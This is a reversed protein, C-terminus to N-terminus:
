RWTLSDDRRAAAPAPAMTPQSYIMPGAGPLYGADDGTPGCGCDNGYCGIPAYPAPYALGCGRPMRVYRPGRDPEAGPTKLMPAQQGPGYGYGWWQACTSPMPPFGPLWAAAEGALSLTAALALLSAALQNRTSMAGLGVGASVVVSREEMSRGAVAAGPFRRTIAHGDRGALVAAVRL